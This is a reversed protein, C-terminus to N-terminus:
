HEGWEYPVNPALAAIITNGFRFATPRLLVIRYMYTYFPIVHSVAYCSVAHLNVVLPPILDVHSRFLYFNPLYSFSLDLVSTM